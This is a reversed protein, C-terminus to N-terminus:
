YLLFKKRKTPKKTTSVLWYFAVDLLLHASFLVAFCLAATVSIIIALWNTTRFAQWLHFCFSIALLLILWSESLSLIALGLMGNVVLSLRLIPNQTVCLACVMAMFLAGALFVAIVDGSVFLLSTSASTLSAILSM